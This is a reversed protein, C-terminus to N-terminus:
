ARDEPNRWHLPCDRPPIPPLKKPKYQQYQAAIIQWFMDPWYQSLYGLMFGDSGQSRIGNLSHGFLGILADSGLASMGPLVNCM